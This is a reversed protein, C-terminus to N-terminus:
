TKRELTVHRWRINLSFKVLQLSGTNGKPLFLSKWTLIAFIQVTLCLTHHRMSATHNVEQFRLKVLGFTVISL